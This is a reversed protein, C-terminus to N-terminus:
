GSGLPGVKSANVARRSIASYADCRAAALPLWAQREGAVHLVLLIRDSRQQRAVVLAVLEADREVHRQERGRAGRRPAADRLRLHPLGLM